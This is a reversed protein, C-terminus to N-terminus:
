QTAENIRAADVAMRRAAARRRYEAQYDKREQNWEPDARVRELHARGYERNRRMWDALEQDSLNAIRERREAQIREAHRAYSDRAIEQVRALREPDAHIRANKRADAAHAQEPNRQRRAKAHAMARAKREPTYAQWKANWRRRKREKLCEPSCTKFVGRKIRFENGCIECTRMVPDPSGRERERRRAERCESSCVTAKNDGQFTASCVCCTLEMVYAARGGRCTVCAPRRLSTLLTTLVDEVTGCACKCRWRRRGIRDESPALGMVEFAGFHKGTLNLPAGM